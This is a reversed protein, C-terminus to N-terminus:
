GSLNKKKMMTRDVNITIIIILERRGTGFNIIKRRTSIRQFNVNTDAFFFISHNIPEKVINYLIIEDLVYVVTPIKEKGYYSSRSYDSDPYGRIEFRPDRSIIRGSGIRRSGERFNKNDRNDRMDRIERSDRMERNDRVDRSDRIDRSDRVDRTDRSDRNERNERGM